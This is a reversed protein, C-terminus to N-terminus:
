RMNPERKKEPEVGWDDAKEQLPTRNDAPKSQTPLKKFSNKSSNRAVGRDESSAQSAVGECHELQNRRM